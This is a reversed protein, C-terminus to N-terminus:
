QTITGFWHPRALILCQNMVTRISAMVEMIISNTHTGITTKYVFAMFLGIMSGDQINNHKM